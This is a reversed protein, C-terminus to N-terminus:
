IAPHPSESTMWVDEFTPMWSYSMIIFTVMVLNEKSNRQSGLHTICKLIISCCNPYTATLRFRDLTFFPLILKICSLEQRVTIRLRVWRRPLNNNTQNKHQQMALLLYLSSSTLLFPLHDHICEPFHTGTRM